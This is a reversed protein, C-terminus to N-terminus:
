EPATFWDSLVQAEAYSVTQPDVKSPEGYRRLARAAFRRARPLERAITAAVAPRLSPSGELLREIEGRACSPKRGDM